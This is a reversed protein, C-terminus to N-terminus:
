TTIKTRHLEVDPWFCAVMFWGLVVLGYVGGVKEVREAELRQRELREKEQMM